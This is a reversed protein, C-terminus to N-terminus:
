KQRFLHCYITSKICSNLTNKRCFNCIKGVLLILFFIDVFDWLKVDLHVVLFILNLCAFCSIILGFWILGTSYLFLVQSLSNSYWFAYIHMFTSVFKGFLYYVFTILFNFWYYCFFVMLPFFIISVIFSDVLISFFNPLSFSYQGKKDHFVQFSCLLFAFIFYFM